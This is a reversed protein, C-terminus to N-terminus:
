VHTLNLQLNHPPLTASVYTSLYNLYDAIYRLRSAQTAVDVSRTGVDVVKRRMRVHKIDIVKPRYSHDEEESSLHVVRHQVTEALRNIEPLTLFHGQRLRRYLDIEAADLWRYLLALTTCVSHITNAAKGRTRFGALYLTAEHVPLHGPRSLVSHREGNRFQIRKAVFSM